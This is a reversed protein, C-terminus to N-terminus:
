PARPRSRKAVLHVIFHGSPRPGPQAMQEMGLTSVGGADAFWTAREPAHHSYSVDIAEGRTRVATVDRVLPTSLTVTVVLAGFGALVLVSRHFAQGRVEALQREEAAETRL